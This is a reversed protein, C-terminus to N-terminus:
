WMARDHAIIAKAAHICASGTALAKDLRDLTDILLSPDAPLLLAVASADEMIMGAKVCLRRVLEIMDDDM